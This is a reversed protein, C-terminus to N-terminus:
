CIPINFEDEDGPVIKDIIKFRLNEYDTNQFVMIWNGLLDDKECIGKPKLLKPEFYINFSDSFSGDFSYTNWVSYHTQNLTRLISIQGIEGYKLGEITLFIKEGLRYEKRDISFPGSKQWERPTREYDVSNNKQDIEDYKGEIESQIEEDTKKELDEIEEFTKERIINEDPIIEKQTENLFISFGIIGVIVPLILFISWKRKLM